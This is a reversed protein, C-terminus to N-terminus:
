REVLIYVPSQRLTAVALRNAATASPSGRAWAEAWSRRASHWRASPFSACARSSNPLARSRARCASQVSPLDRGAGCRRRAGPSRSRAGPRRSGRGPGRARGTRRRPRRRRPGRGARTVARRHTPKRGVAKQQPFNFTRFSLYEPLQWLEAPQWPCVQPPSRFWLHAGTRGDGPPRGSVAPGRTRSYPGGLGPGYPTAAGCLRRGFRDTRLESAIGVDYRLSGWAIGFREPAAAGPRAGAGNGCGGASWMRAVLVLHRHFGRCLDWALFGPPGGGHVIEHDREVLPGDPAGVEAGGPDGLLQADRAVPGLLRDGHQAFQAQDLGGLVARASQDRDARLGGLHLQEDGQLPLDEVSAAAEGPELSLEAGERGRELLLGPGAGLRHHDGVVPLLDLQAEEFGGLGAGGLDQHHLGAHGALGRLQPQGAGRGRRAAARRAPASGRGWVARPSESM